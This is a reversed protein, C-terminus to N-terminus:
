EIRRRLLRDALWLSDNWRHGALIRMPRRVVTPCTAASSPRSYLCARRPSTGTVSALRSAVIRAAIRWHRSADSSSRRIAAISAAKAGALAVLETTCSLDLLHCSGKSVSPYARLRLALGRHRRDAQHIRAQTDARRNPLLNGQRMRPIPFPFCEGTSLWSSRNTAAPLILSISRSRTLNM